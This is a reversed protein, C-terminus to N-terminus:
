LAIPLDNELVEEKSILISSVITEVLGPKSSTIKIRMDAPNRSSLENTSAFANHEEKSVKINIEIPDVTDSNSDKMRSESTQTIKNLAVKCSQMRKLARSDIGIENASCTEIIQDLPIAKISKRNSPKKKKTKQNTGTVAKRPRLRGEYM